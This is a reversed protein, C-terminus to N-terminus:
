ITNFIEAKDEGLFNIVISRCEEVCNEESMTDVKNATHPGFYKLMIEKCKIKKVM